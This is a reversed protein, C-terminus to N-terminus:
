LKYIEKIYKKLDVGKVFYRAHQGHGFNVAPLKDDKILRYIVWISPELKTNVIAGMETITEPSYLEDDKISSLTKKIQNLM